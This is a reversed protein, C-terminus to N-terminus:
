IGGGDRVVALQAGRELRLEGGGFLVNEFEGFRALFELGFELAFEFPHVLGFLAHPFLEVVGLIFFVLPLYTCQPARNRLM